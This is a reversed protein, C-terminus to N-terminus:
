LYCHYFICTILIKYITKYERNAEYKAGKIDKNYCIGIEKVIVIVEKIM